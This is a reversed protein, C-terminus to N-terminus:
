PINKRHQLLFAHPTIGVLRKFARTFHSQDVFGLEAAIAALPLNGKLLLTKAREIRTQLIYQHASVGTTQKFVTAFHHPSLAAIGALETLTLSRHFQARIYEIVPRMSDTSLRGPIALDDPKRDSFRRLLHAALAHALSEVYVLSFQATAADIEARLAFGIQLILPDQIVDEQGRVELSRASTSTEVLQSILTPELYLLLFDAQEPRRLWEQSYAPSIILDGTRVTHRQLPGGNLRRELCGEQLAIRIKHYPLCWECEGPPQLRHHEVAISEWQAKRPAMAPAGSLSQFTAGSICEHSHEESM